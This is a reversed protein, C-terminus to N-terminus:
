VTFGSADLQYRRPNNDATLGTPLVVRTWFPTHELTDIDGLDLDATQWTGPSGSVDPAIQAYNDGDNTGLAEISVTVDQATEDGFNEVFLKVNSSQGPTNISGLNKTTIITSEDTDLIRLAAPM